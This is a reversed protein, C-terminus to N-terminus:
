IRGSSGLASLVVCPISVLGLAAPSPSAQSNTTVVKTNLLPPRHEGGQEM